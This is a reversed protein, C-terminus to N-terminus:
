MVERRKGDLGCWFLRLFDQIEQPAPVILSSFLYALNTVDTAPSVGVDLVTSGARVIARLTGSARRSSVHSQFVL